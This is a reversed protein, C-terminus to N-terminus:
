AVPTVVEIRLAPFSSRPTVRKPFGGGAWDAHHEDAALHEPLRAPDRVTAGVLSSRGLREVVRYWDMEGRGFGITLLWAPAGHAALLLPYALEEVTGTM